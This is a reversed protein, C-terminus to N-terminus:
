SASRKHDEDVVAKAIAALVEPDLLVAKLTAPDVPAAQVPPKAEIRDLQEKLKNPESRPATEGTLHYQAAPRGELITLLRWTDATATNRDPQEYMDAGTLVAFLERHDWDARSRFFSMHLHFLHSSDSTAPRDTVNNWGDVIQDGGLNGYWERLQPFRDARVAADLRKCVEVLAPIGTGTQFDVACLWRPDGSQDLSHRVSYDDAGDESYRSRLIWERSRHYGSLHDNDGKAGILSFGVHYHARLADTLRRLNPPEFERTWYSEAELEAYSPM